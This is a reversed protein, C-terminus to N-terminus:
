DAGTMRVSTQPALVEAEKRTRQSFFREEIKADQRWDLSLNGDNRNMETGETTETTSHEEEVTEGNRGKGEGRSVSCSDHIV